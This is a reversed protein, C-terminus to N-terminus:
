VSLTTCDDSFDLNLGDEGVWFSVSYVNTM